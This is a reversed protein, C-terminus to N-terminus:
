PALSKVQFATVIDLIGRMLAWIGAFVLLTAAKTVFFQGGLWFGLVVMLIGAILSLWWLDNYDRALFAEITWFIGIIVFIFGLINAIALFTRTPYFLAFLGGIILIAGFVYWIWNWGEVLTGVYIYQFGAVLLLIGVIIGVTTASATDFQLILVSLLIWVIGTVLWLWWWKSAESRFQAEATQATM